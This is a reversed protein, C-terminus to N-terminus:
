PFFFLPNKLHRKTQNYFQKTRVKKQKQHNFSAFHGFFLFLVVLRPLAIGVQDDHSISKLCSPPDFYFCVGMQISHGVSALCDVAHNAERFIKVMHVDWNRSILQQVKCIVLAYRHKIDVDKYILSLAAASDIELIVKRFGSSWAFQPVRFRLWLSPAFTLILLLVVMFGDWNM